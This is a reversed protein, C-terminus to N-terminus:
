PPALRIEGVWLELGFGEKSLDILKGQIRVRRGIWPALRRAAYSTAYLDLERDASILRYAHRRTGPGQVIDRRRLTGTFLQEPPEAELYFPEGAFIGLTEGAVDQRGESVQSFGMGTPYATLYAGTEVSSLLAALVVHAAMGSPVLFLM